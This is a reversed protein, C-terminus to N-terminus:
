LIHWHALSQCQYSICQVGLMMIHLENPHHDLYESLVVYHTQQMCEKKKKKGFTRRLADGKTKKMLDSGVM